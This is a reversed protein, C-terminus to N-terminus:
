RLIRRGYFTVPKTSPMTSAFPSSAAVGAAGLAVGGTGALAALGDGMAEIAADGVSEGFMNQLIQRCRKMSTGETLLEALLKGFHAMENIMLDQDAHDEPWRDTFNDAALFPNRVQILEGNRRASTLRDHIHCVIVALNESISRGSEAIEYALCSLMVSPPMRGERKEWRVNRYRKLLQLAVTVSSKGGLVVSHPPAPQSEAENLIRRTERENETSWRSYEVEFETDVPFKENYGNVFAYSNTPVRRDNLRSEEPKAHFIVSARPDQPDVLESPTLDVHIGNDKYMVTICRTQRETMEYYRSGPKGRVVEYLEDLTDCPNLGQGIREVMVDIDFGEKRYRSKITAGIAVSGQPYFLRIRGKLTSGDRELYKELANRRENLAGLASPPLEIKNAVIALLQEANSAWPDAKRKARMNRGM